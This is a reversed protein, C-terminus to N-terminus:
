TRGGRGDFIAGPGDYGVEAWAASHAYASFLVSQKVAGFVQRRIMIRSGAMAELFEDRDSASRTSFRGPPLSFLIPSFELFRVADRFLSRLWSPATSLTFDIRSAVGDPGDPMPIGDAIREAAASLTAFEVPGLVRLDSPTPRAPSCAPGVTAAITLGALGLGSRRLFDRRTVGAQAAASVLLAPPMGEPQPTHSM